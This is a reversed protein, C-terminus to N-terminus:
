YWSVVQDYETALRVFDQDSIAMVRSDIRDLVGRCILDPQLAYIAIDSRWTEPEISVAAYVGDELLLIADKPGLAALCEQLCNHSAPSKNVTHLIM